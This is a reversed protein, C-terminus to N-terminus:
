ILALAAILAVGGGILWLGYKQVFSPTLTSLSQPTLSYGLQGSPLVVQSGLGSVNSPSGTYVPVPQNQANYAYSIPAVTQGAQARALQTNLVALQTNANSKAAQAAFYSGALSTLSKVNDSNTIWDSVGSVANSFAGGINSLVDSFDGLRPNVHRAVAYFLGPHETLMWVALSQASARTMM